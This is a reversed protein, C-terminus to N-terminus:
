RKRQRAWLGIGALGIILFVGAMLDTLRMRADMIELRELLPGLQRQVAEEIAQQDAANLRPLSATQRIGTSTEGPSNGYRDLAFADPGQKAPAGGRLRQAKIQTSAIHGDGVDVTVVIDALVPAPIAFGYSGDSGTKGEAVPQDGMTAFWDAGSPRGSGVFFAYGDIQGDAVRAFLKLSHAHAPAALVAAILVWALRVVWATQLFDLKRM